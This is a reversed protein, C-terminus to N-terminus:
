GFVHIDMGKRPTSSFISKEGLPISKMPHRRRAWKWLYKWVRYTIYNFIEKSVVGQYYNSFGRLKPNLKTILNEQSWSGCSKITEGIEKCFELVKEKQPKILLKGKYHRLNFGLFNFGENIHVIRTKEESIQLGREQLWQKLIELINELTEKDKATVIFDDAYRIIGVKPRNGWNNRPLKISNILRELGHLGINALM